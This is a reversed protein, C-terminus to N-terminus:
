KSRIYFVWGVIMALYVLKGAWDWASSGKAPQANAPSPLDEQAVQKHPAARMGHGQRPRWDKMLVFAIAGVVLVAVWQMLLTGIEVTARPPMAFLFAYGSQIVVTIMNNGGHVVYPPFALMLVIVVGIAVLTHRQMPSM